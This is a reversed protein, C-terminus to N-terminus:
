WAGQAMRLPLRLTFGKGRQKGAVAVDIALTDV